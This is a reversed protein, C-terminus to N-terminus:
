LNTDWSFYEDLSLIRKYIIVMCPVLLPYAVLMLLVGLFGILFAPIITVLLLFWLWVKGMPHGNIMEM